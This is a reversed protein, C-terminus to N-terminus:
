AAVFMVIAEQVPNSIHSEDVPGSSHPEELFLSELAPLVGTVRGGVLEQLSPAIRPVVGESLYLNKVATFPDFLELWQSNEIDEQWHSQSDIGECIFLNKLLPIILSLSSSCIQAVFSLQWDSARCATRLIVRQMSGLVVQVADHLFIVHAENHAKINPTRTIFHALHPTHLILQYFFTISLHELLPADVRAVIDEL